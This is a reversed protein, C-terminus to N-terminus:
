ISNLNLKESKMVLEKCSFIAISISFYMAIMGLLHLVKEVFHDLNM